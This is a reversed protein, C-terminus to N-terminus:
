SACSRKWCYPPWEKSIRDLNGPWNLLMVISNRWKERPFIYIYMKLIPDMKGGAVETSFWGLWKFGAAFEDPSYYALTDPLGIGLNAIKCLADKAGMNTM